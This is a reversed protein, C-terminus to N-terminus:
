KGTRERRKVGRFRSRGEPQWELEAAVGTLMREAVRDKQFPDPYFPMRIVRRLGLSGAIDKVTERSGFSFFFRTKEGDLGSAMREADALEWEKTGLLALIVDARNIEEECDESFAGFDRVIMRYEGSRCVVAEGYEPIGTFDALECVGGREKVSPNRELLARLMGSSNQEEYLCRYGNRNLCSVLSVALHTTGIRPQSGTVAIILSSNQEELDMGTRVSSLSKKLEAVSFYRNEPETEMAKRIIKKLQVSFSGAKGTASARDDQEGGAEAGAMHMLVAGIAYIDAKENVGDAEYQEPAAYGPTGMSFEAQGSEELSIATGFDILKVTNGCILVHQPKLDLYLVPYPRTTHLYEIISCIQIGYNVIKRKSINKQGLLIAQLSEGEVYEEIIYLSEEDEEMDYIIPIGPHKLNKLLKAEKLFQQYMIHTKSIKKIARLSNLRIHEALYVTGSYGSGIIGKM